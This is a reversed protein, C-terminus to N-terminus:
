KSNIHTKIKEFSHVGYFDDTSTFTGGRRVEDYRYKYMGHKQDWLVVAEKGVVHPYSYHGTIQIRDGEKVNAQKIFNPNQKVQKINDLLTSQLTSLLNNTQHVVETSIAQTGDDGVTDDVPLCFDMFKVLDPTKIPEAPNGHEDEIDIQTKGEEGLVHYNCITIQKGKYLFTKGIMEKLKTLAPKGINSM